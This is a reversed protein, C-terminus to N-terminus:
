KKPKERKEKNGGGFVSVNIYRKPNEKFDALLLSLNAVADNVNAYLQEDTLLKGASGQGDKLKTLIANLNDLSQAANRVLVPGQLALSDSLLAINKVGRQLDPSMERLSASLAALNTLTKNLNDKQGGVVEDINGSISKLNSMTASLAATNEPSLAANIGDLAKTLKSVIESAMEKLKGYEEGAADIISREQATRMTDGSALSRTDDDGLKIDLVKGGLLSTSAIKAESNAPLPYEGNVIMKVVVQSTKINFSIKEVQGIKFGKIIVPASVELGDAQQFVAYIVNDDSFLRTNKIFNFGFYAGALVAVTFIGILVEKSFIKKM